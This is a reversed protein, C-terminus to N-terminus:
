QRQLRGLLGVALVLVLANGAWIMSLGFNLVAANNFNRIDWPVNECTHQGTVILLICIMAPVVSLAFASLFNGSKFMMGLAAGVMVLILCSVSFSARAYLESIISNSLRYWDRELRMKREPPLTGNRYDEVRRTEMDILSQPMPISFNRAFRTRATVTEGAKVQADNLEMDINLLRKPPDARNSGTSVITPTVRLDVQRATVELGGVGGGVIQKLRPPPEAAPGDTSGVILKDGRVQAKAGGRELVYSENAGEFTAIGDTSNLQDAVNQLYAQRQDDLIFERLVRILRKSKEPERYLEQLRGLPMFKTNERVPSEMPDSFFGTTEVSVQVANQSGARPNRPFKMGGELQAQLYVDGTQEDQSIFATAVRAMYFDQPPQPKDRDRKDQPQEYQIFVPAVLRVVQDRPREPPAPMVQAQQAFITLPKGVGQSLEIRHNREIQNSVLQAINSYIIREVQLSCIPVVFYLFAFSILSVILGLVVAPLAMGFIGMPIGAARCATLENDASLRGYVMTTAFLAAVPLSYTQMAPMFYGLIRAVQGAALGHETLPRLLGGFSMIGALCGSALLFIKLLDKFIYWFLTRSM